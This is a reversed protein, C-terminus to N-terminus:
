HNMKCYLSSFMFIFIEVENFSILSITYSNNFFGLLNQEKVLDKLKQKYTPTHTLIFKDLNIGDANYLNGVLFSYFQM